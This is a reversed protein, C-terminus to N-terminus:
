SAVAIADNAPVLAPWMEAFVRDFIPRDRETYCCVERSGGNVDRALKGPEKGREVVYAAKLKKGFTGSRRKLEDRGVGRAQLYGTVDLLPDVIAPKEGTILAVGHEVKHRLFEPDYLGPVAAYLSLAERQRLAQLRVQAEVDFASFTPVIQQQPLEGHRAMVFVDIVEHTVARAKPTSIQSMLFLTEREDLWFATGPRGGTKSRETSVEFPNFKRQNGTSESELKDEAALERIKQRLKYIDCYDSRRCIEVDSVRPESDGPKFGVPWGNVEKLILAASM